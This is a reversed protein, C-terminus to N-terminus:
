QSYKNAISSALSSIEKAIEWWPMGIFEQRREFYNDVMKAPLSLFAIILATLLFMLIVSQRGSKKIYNNIRTIGLGAAFLAVVGFIVAYAYNVSGLLSFQIFVSM